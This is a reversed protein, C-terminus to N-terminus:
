DLQSERLQAGRVPVPDPCHGHRLGVGPQTNKLQIHQNQITTAENNIPNVQM